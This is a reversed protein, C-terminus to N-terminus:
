DAKQRKPKLLVYVAGAGGDVPKASCFALIHECQRLWQNLQNKLPPFKEQSGYGKGHIIHLVRCNKRLAQCLFNELQARAQKLTFGHLDLTAEYSLQGKSLQKMKKQPLDPTQYSIMTEKEVQPALKADSFRINSPLLSPPPSPKKKFPKVSRPAPTVRNQKVLPKVGHMAKQLLSREDENNDDNSM